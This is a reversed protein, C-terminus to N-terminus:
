EEERDHIFRHGIDVHPIHAIKFRELGKNRKCHEELLPCQDVSLQLLSPPLGNKPLSTLKPCDSIRLSALSNLSRFGRSSLYRLNPFEEIVLWTLSTPLKMGIEEQPFSEVDQCRYIRLEKLSTLKHLGWEFLLKCIERGSIELSTLNPPLGEEPFSIISPCGGIVLRRLSTLKHFRNPLAELKHFSSILLLRLNATPFGGEPFSVFTWLGGIYFIKLNNLNYLCEPISKLKECDWIAIYELSSDKQFRKAISEVKSCCSIELQKLASPLKGSSTVTELTSCLSIKLYQLSVPLEGRACLCTLFPCQKISLEELLCTNRINANEEEDLVCQLDFCDKIALKKLSSPLISERFLVRGNYDTVYLERLCALSPFAKQLKDFREFRHLTLCEVSFPIELQPEKNTEEVAGLSILPFCNRIESYRVFSLSGLSPLDKCVHIQLKEVKTLGQMFGETLCTLKSINSLRMLDQTSFDVTSTQVVEKCGNIKLENLMPLNPISVVLQECQYIVLKELSPLYCPLKGSLKPCNNITLKRLCPFETNVVDSSFRWDKWERMSEFQLTELAPFPELIAEGFFEPGLGKVSSLGRICLDKLSPLQGLPPLAICWECNDLQLQVMHSFSSDGLWKPFKTGGYYEISLKKLRTSPQLKELVDSEIAEDRSNDFKSSWKLSLIKLNMDQLEANSAEQSDVVNELRRISFSEQLLKLKKFDGIRSELNKGVVFEPLMRLNKLEKMGLPMEEVSTANTVDLYQLNILNYMNAPWKKFYFCNKLLLTQLNCLSSTSEPLKRITTYSLNLYRLHKLDGISEPLYRIYYGSLCLVRLCKLKPLLDLAKTTLYSQRLNQYRRLPLFTRLSEVNYLDEIRKYNDYNGRFYSSHRVNGPGKSQKDDNLKCQLRFCVDGAAWQALNNILDHMFFRSKDQSSQQFLSRCCLQQFYEHGLDMSQQGQQILGEAMWLLILEIEEFEYNKLISCYAFCRKLHSPLHQYSLRLVSIIDDEKSCLSWINRNLVNEWEDREECYLLGGLIRAALPSGKCKETVKQRVPELQSTGFDGNPIVYDVFVSWCDDDTLPNLKVYEAAGMIVGVNRDRTTVIVKSGPAGAIFAFKLSDWQGAINTSQVNDLVLLFRKQTLDERLKLPNDFDGSDWSCNYLNFLAEKVVDFDNDSGDLWIKPDFDKLAEDNYILRALTTKGVGDMGVIPIVSFNGGSSPERLVSELIKEKDKDRGYVHVETPFCSNLPKKQADSSLGGFIKELGLKIRRNSIQELRTTISNLRSGTSVTFQVAIANLSTFHNPVQHNVVNSSAQIEAAMLKCRLSETAVEDLIDELDYLLDRLDSLWIKVAENTLQKQEADKLVDQITSLMKMWKKLKEQIGGHFAFDLLDASALNGLLVQLLGSILFPEGAAM